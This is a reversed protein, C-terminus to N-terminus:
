IYQLTVMYRLLGIGDDTCDGTEDGQSAGYLPKCIRPRSLIGDDWWKKSRGETGATYKFMVSLFSIYNKMTNGLLTQINTNHSMLYQYAIDHIGQKLLSCFCYIQTAIRCQQNIYGIGQTFFVFHLKGDVCLHCKVTHKKNAKYYDAKLQWNM